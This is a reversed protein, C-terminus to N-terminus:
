SGFSSEPREVLEVVIGDPDRLFAIWLGAIPTGPLRFYEPDNADCGREVAAAHAARVDDVALAMRYLGRHHASPYPVGEPKPDRWETLEITFADGATFGMAATVVEAPWREERPESAVVCGLARYWTISREINRCSLRVHSVRPAGDGVNLEVLLGDPDRLVMTGDLPWGLVEGGLGRVQHAAADLDPAVFGLAQIGVHNPEAYVDGETSPTCWQVLELAPAVRPGRQDYLFRTDTEVTGDIGMPRGDVGGADTVSRMVVRLDFLETYFRTAVEIDRCNHNCHLLRTAPATV